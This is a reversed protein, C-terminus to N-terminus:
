KKAAALAQLAATNADISQRILLLIDAINLTTGDGAQYEFYSGLIANLMAGFQDSPAIDEDGEEGEDAEYQEEDVEQPPELQSM